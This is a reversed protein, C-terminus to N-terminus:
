YASAENVRFTADELQAADKGSVFEFLEVEDSQGAGLDTVYAIDTAIRTGAPTPAQNM